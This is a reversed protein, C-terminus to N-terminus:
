YKENIYKDIIKQLYDDSMSFLVSALYSSDIREILKKDDNRLANYILQGFREGTIKDEPLVIKSKTKM